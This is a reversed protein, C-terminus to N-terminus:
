QTGSFLFFFCNFLVCFSDVLQSGDSSLGVLMKRLALLIDCLHPESLTRAFRTFLSLQDFVKVSKASAPKQQSSDAALSRVTEYNGQSCEEHLIFLQEAVQLM